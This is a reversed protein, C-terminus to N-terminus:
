LPVFRISKLLPPNKGATTQKVEIHYDRLAPTTAKVLPISATATEKGAAFSITGGGVKVGGKGNYVTITYSAAAGNGVGNFELSAVGTPDFKGAKFSGASAPFVLYKTGASDKAAFGNVATLENAEIINSRLTAAGSGSLPRIGNSGEDTYNAQITYVMNQKGADEAKPTVAGSAPLSKPKNDDALSRIWGVILKADDEKLSPHAPMAVEGWVGAGGKIIKAPLYTNADAADKYKQAVKVFSPGISAENEKHCAKCDLTLMINKGITTAQVVQHGLNAGAKDSGKLMDAMVYLNALNVAAGKDTVSVKYKVPKGAFYFSRNGNINVNVDPQANGAYVTVKSSSTSAKKSDIVDVSVEYEGPTAVIHKLVPVRTVKKTKGIHWVYTLVDKEPDTAKVTAQITLPTAGSTKNVKISAVAPPRNGPLYDIRSIGADPNKNFWGNGYELVYIRGDPGAEMDIMSNFPMGDVFPEIKDVDGEATQSVAKIWGRVFDYIILKGNYYASYRTAAPYDATYYVPGTMATRGGSGLEPFDPSVAYPYWIYAPQAPPLETLGTNNRSNNMPKAPDSPAANENTTYNHINYAYNDGVFLPWGFNGAKRAQNVEDYGRPGRTGISDVNADPGVEGWYLYGTKKDVSIRYPNRNGMVYIEPRTKATGKPFLNGEPIDYTGDANVKIRLIKGRLDNTNGASRRADYQEHGPRDDMPGFSRSPYKEGPEDFPTSNDGASVYLNDDKGFAISGGTHCCIERTTKVELIVKESSNDLTDGKFVFRSLRDISESGAPSYYMYIYHNTAYAPDAAIGLLGEESNVNPVKTKFYVNLAGVQKVTKKVADYKMLEGRRQAVLIDFNPLIAMETPEFFEGQVLMKKIFRNAEPVRQTKAKSYDIAHNDGIAYKIGGLVHQLYQPDAYSEDTHGFETYFARGGDFDHYWAMPHKAGNEGGKYSKEDINILVKVDPNLKKFNYWEDTRTWTDPLHKTSLHNKDVVNLVAQQPAPHSKFYGGVLRGYWGWGYETDTAAHIGVFGGGAQIYREFDAEQYQNLVDGTTSLFVVAAYKKLNDETFAKANTTTDVDFNNETGLKIIANLGKPISSHHFGATKAFVLVRPKPAIKGCLFLVICIGMIAFGSLRLYFTSKM